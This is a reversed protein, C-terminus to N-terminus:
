PPSSAATATQTGPRSTSRQLCSAAAKYEPMVELQNIVGENVFRVLTGTLQKKIEPIGPPVYVVNATVDEGGFEAPFLLVKHLKGAAVLKLAAERSTVESFDM